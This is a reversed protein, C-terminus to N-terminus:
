PKPNEVSWLSLALFSLFFCFGWRMLSFWSVVFSLSFGIYLCSFFCIPCTCPYRAPLLLGRRLWWRVVSVVDAVRSSLFLFAPPARSEDGPFLVLPLPSRHPARMCRYFLPTKPEGRYAFPLSSALPFPFLFSQGATLSLLLSPPLYLLTRVRVWKELQTLSM